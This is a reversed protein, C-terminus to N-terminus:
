VTLKTVSHQSDPEIIDLYKVKLNVAPSYGFHIKLTKLTRNQKLSGLFHIGNSNNVNLLSM